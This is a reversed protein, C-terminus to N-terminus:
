VIFSRGVENAQPSWAGAALGFARDTNLLASYAFRLSVDTGTERVGPNLPVAPLETGDEASASPYTLAELGAIVTFPTGAGPPFRGVDITPAGPSGAIARLRGLGTLQVAFGDRHFGVRVCPRAADGPAGSQFGSAVALYREGAALPGTSSV